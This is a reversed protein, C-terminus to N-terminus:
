ENSEGESTYFNTCVCFKYKYKTCSDAEEGYFKDLRNVTCHGVLHLLDDCRWNACNSCIKM